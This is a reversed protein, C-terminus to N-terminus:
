KFREVLFYTLAIWLIYSSVIISVARIIKTLMLDNERPKM